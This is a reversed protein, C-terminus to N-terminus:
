FNMLFRVIKKTRDSFLSPTFFTGAARKSVEGITPYPAISGAIASVKMRRQVALAWPFILEGAHAGVIC